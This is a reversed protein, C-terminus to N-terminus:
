TLKDDVTTGLLRPKNAWELADTGIHIPASSGMASTKCILM